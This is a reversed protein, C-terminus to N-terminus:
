EISLLLAGKEITQGPVVELATVKGTKPSPVENEMKMAEVVVLGQGQRVEEGQKVKVAVVKGPMAARIERKAREEPAGQRAAEREHPELIEVTVPPGGLDMHCAGGERWWTIEFVRGGVRVTLLHGHSELIEAEIPRGDLRGEYGSGVPRLELSRRRGGLSAELKM